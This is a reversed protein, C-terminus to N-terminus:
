AHLLEDVKAFAKDWTDLSPATVIRVAPYWLSHGTENPVWYHFPPNASLYVLLTSRGLAGAFHATVNSTTVVIDCAEVAALVGDLDKFLDLEELRALRGGARAFTEREQATDGYQLDLLRLDARRSLAMFAALPASKKRQMYDRASPQFSRWSIGASRAGPAALRERYGAARVADAALLARPQRAFSGRTPRLLRALSGLAAHRDCQAFAAASEEPPVVNWAPHARKFAPILRADLELVFEQGRAELEPLLTAYLIQDGVGQERWVALRRGKGWDAESFAPVQFPRPIAIPPVTRYREEHLLWGREFEFEALHALALNYAARAHGPDAGLAREYLAMAERRRGQEQLLYGVNNIADPHDPRLALAQEYAGIAADIEGREQLVVGLNSYAEPERPAAAIVERFCALAEDQRGLASLANGLNNRAQHFGPDLELARRYRAVADGFRNRWFYAIGLENEIAPANPQLQAARELHAIAEEARGAERLATGYNALGIALNPNLRVAEAYHKLAEDTRGKVKLANALNVHAEPFAARLALAKRYGAMAEDVRGAEHFLMALNYHTEPREPQLALARRYAREAAEREGQAALVSALLNWAQPLDGRIRVAEELEARAEPFRRLAFLTQARNHLLAANGPALARARDLWELSEAARGQSGVIVGLLQLAEVSAPAASVLARLVSEAEASRAAQWLAVANRYAADPADAM